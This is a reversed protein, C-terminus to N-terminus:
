AEDIVPGEKAQNTSCFFWSEDFWSCTRYNHCWPGEQFRCSETWHTAQNKMCVAGIVWVFPKSGRLIAKKETTSSKLSSMEKEHLNRNAHTKVM